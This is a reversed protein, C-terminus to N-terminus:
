NKMFVAMMENQRLQFAAINLSGQFGRGQININKGKWEIGTVAVQRCISPINTDSLVPFADEINEGFYKANKFGLIDDANLNAGALILSDGSIRYIQIGYPLRCVAAEHKEASKEIRSDSIFKEIESCFGCSDKNFPCRGCMTKKYGGGKDPSLLVEFIMAAYEPNDTYQWLEGPAAPLIDKEVVDENLFVSVVYKGDTFYFIDRAAADQGAYYVM